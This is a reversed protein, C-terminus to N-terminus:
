SAVQGWIKQHSMMTDSSSNLKLGINGINKLLCENNFVCTNNFPQMSEFVKNYKYANFVIGLTPKLVEKYQNTWSLQDSIKSVQNILQM